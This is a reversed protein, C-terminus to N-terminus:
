AKCKHTSLALLKSTVIPVALIGLIVFERVTEKIGVLYGSEPLLKESTFIGVVTLLLIVGVSLKIAVAVNVGVVTVGCALIVAGLIFGVAVLEVTIVIGALTLYVVENEDDVELSYPYYGGENKELVSLFIIEDNYEYVNEHNEDQEVAFKLVDSEGSEKIVVDGTGRVVYILGSSYETEPYVRWYEDDEKTLTYGNLCQENDEYETGVLASDIIKLNEKIYEEEDSAAVNVVSSANRDIKVLFSFDNKCETLYGGNSPMNLDVSTGAYIKVDSCGACKYTIDGNAQPQATAEYRHGTPDIYSKEEVGCDACVRKHIGSRTCSAAVNVAWDGYTHGTAATYDTNYQLGCVKCVNVTYGSSLCTAKITNSDVNHGLPDIKETEVEGCDCKRTKEGANHCNAEKVITWDGFAHTHSDERDEDEPEEGDPEEDETEEGDPDEDESDEGDPEEDESEEDESEEDEPQEDGDDPNEDPSEADSDEDESDAGGDSEYLEDDRTEQCGCSSLTFLMAFALMFAVILAIKKKM